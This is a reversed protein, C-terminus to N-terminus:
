RGEESLLLFRMEEDHAPPERRGEWEDSARWRVEAVMEAVPVSRRALSSTDEPPRATEAEHRGAGGTPSWAFAALACLAGAVALRAARRPRPFGADAGLRASLHPLLDPAPVGPLGRWAACLGREEREARACAPCAARHAAMDAGQDPGLRDTAWDALDRRFKRCNM